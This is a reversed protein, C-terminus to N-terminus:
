VNSKALSSNCQTKYASMGSKLCKLSSLLISCGCNSGRSHLHLGPSHLTTRPFHFSRSLHPMHCIFANWKSSIVRVPPEKTSSHKTLGEVLCWWIERPCWIPKTHCQLATPNACNFWLNAQNLPATRSKGWNCVLYYLKEEPLNDSWCCSNLM